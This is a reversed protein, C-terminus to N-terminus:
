LNCAHLIIRWFFRENLKRLREQLVNEVPTRRQKSIFYLLLHWMYSGHYWLPSLVIRTKVAFLISSDFRRFVWMFARTSKRVISSIDPDSSTWGVHVTISFGFQHIYRSVNPRVSWIIREAIDIPIRTNWSRFRSINDTAFSSPYTWHYSFEEIILPKKNSIQFVLTVSMFRNKNPILYVDDSIMIISMLLDFVIHYSYM